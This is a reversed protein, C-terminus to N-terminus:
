SERISGFSILSQIHYGVYYNTPALEKVEIVELLQGQNDYHCLYYCGDDYSKILTKNNSIAIFGNLLKSDFPLQFKLKKLWVQKDYDKLVWLTVRQREYSSTHVFSLSDGLERLWYNEHRLNINPGMIVRFQEDALNFAILRLQTYGTRLGPSCSNWEWCLNGNAYIPKKFHDISFRPPYNISKWTNHGGSGITYVELSNPRCETFCVVKYKRSHPNFGLGLNFIGAIKRKQQPIPVPIPITEGTVPNYLRLFNSARERLCLLGNCSASNHYSMNNTLRLEKALGHQDISYYRFCNEKDFIQIFGMGEERALTLNSSVFSPDHILSCWHKSVCKFKALSLAPVRRLIDVLVEHPFKSNDWVQQEEENHM